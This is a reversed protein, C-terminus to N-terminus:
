SAKPDQQGQTTTGLSLLCFVIEECSSSTGREFLCGFLGGPCSALDSYGVPGEQLVWPHGWGEGDLPSPNLYIGLDSRRRRDIPHSYLLWRSAGQGCSAPAPFSVVSGQCGRPPEGLAPCPKPHGFRGGGDTSVAVARCGRPARASCYLLPCSAGDRGGVEAVQCEGTQSAGGLLAGRHWSHG